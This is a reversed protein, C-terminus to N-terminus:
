VSSEDPSDLHPLPLDAALARSELEDASWWSGLTAALRRAAAAPRIDGETRISWSAHAATLAVEMARGATTAYRRAGAQLREPDDRAAGRWREAEALAAAAEHVVPLLPDGHMAAACRGIERGLPDDEGDGLARQLDLALVNTTGEWITLVQADRLLQPLGTDELYGAGGHAELCESVVAVAQRATLLKALPTLVRLLRREADDALGHEEQGILEVVRFTLHMAGEFEAQLGALTDSHLPQESLSRGFASRRTAYDRALAIGRRMFACATVANWTRTLNLLPAVSRVGDGRAGVRRAAAGDLEIEATPLKRTGLKEKLRRIQIGPALDTGERTELYFLDLGRNGRAADDPRALALAMEAGVASTFWKLGSLRWLEGDRRAVTSTGSVDSGGTAETMWQGSTWATAPDRSLLRPVARDILDRSGHLLLTRAAGDSMALPCAYIDTSPTFLYALAFQHIRDYPGDGGDYATAVIGQEAALAAARRWVATPEIRDIRRGWGDWRVLRPESALDDLQLRYLEGGSLEGLERLAPRAAAIVEAPMLRALISRLVRDDDFQNGLRPPEQVFSM